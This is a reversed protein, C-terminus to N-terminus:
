TRPSFRSGQLTAEARVSGPAKGSALNPVPVETCRRGCLAVGAEVRGSGSPGAASQLVRRGPWMGTRSSRQTSRSAGASVRVWASPEPATRMSAVRPAPPWASATGRATERGAGSRSQVTVRVRQRGGTLPQGAEAVPDLRTRGAVVSRGVGEVSTPNPALRNGDVPATRGRPGRHLQVARFPSRRSGPRVRSMRISGSASRVAASM